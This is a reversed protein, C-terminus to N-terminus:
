FVQASTNNTNTATKSVYEHDTYGQWYSVCNISSNFLNKSHNEGLHDMIGRAWAVQDVLGKKLFCSIPKCTHKCVLQIYFNLTGEM